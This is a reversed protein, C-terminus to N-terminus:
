QGCGQNIGNRRSRHRRGAAGATERADVMDVTLILSSTHLSLRVFPFFVLEPLPQEGLFVLLRRQPAWCRMRRRSSRGEKTVLRRAEGRRRRDCWGAFCFYPLLILLLFILHTLLLLLLSTSVFVFLLCTSVKQKKNKETGASRRDNATARLAPFSLILPFRRVIYFLALSFYTPYASILSRLSLVISVQLRKNEGERGTSQQTKSARESHCCPLVNAFDAGAGHNDDRYRTECFFPVPDANAFCPAPKCEHRDLSQM